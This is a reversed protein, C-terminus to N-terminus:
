RSRRLLRRIGNLICRYWGVSWIGLEQKWTLPRKIAIFQHTVALLEDSSVGKASLDVRVDDPIISEPEQDLLQSLVKVHRIGAVAEVYDCAPRRNFENSELVYEVISEIPIGREGEVGHELCYDIMEQKTMRLHIWPYPSLCEMHHGSRSNWLPSAVSYIIGSAKTVRVMEKFAAEIDIVHEMTAFCYVLDYYNDPLQMSEASMRFYQVNDAHYDAGVNSVIDLGHVEQAGWDVFYRCDLGTNAGVVLIRSGLIEIYNSARQAHFENFNLQTDKEKVINPM